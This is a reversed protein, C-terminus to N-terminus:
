GRAMMCPSFDSSSSVLCSEIALFAAVIEPDFQTGRGQRILEVADPHPLGPKYSRESTLADYVDVIAMLRAALPIERGRLANPYGNGDWREHHSLTLEAVCHLFSSFHGVFKATAVVARYGVTTHKKVLDYEVPTLAGPKELVIQPIGIKGLDHFPASAVLVAPAVSLENLQRTSLAGILWCLYQSTRYSHGNLASRTAFSKAGRPWSYLM